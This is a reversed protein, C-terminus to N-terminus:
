KARLDALYARVRDPTIRDGPPSTPDLLDQRDLWQLWRGYGYVIGRNTNETFGARPGGEDLVDGGILSSKGCVGTRTGAMGRAAQLPPGSRPSPDPDDTTRM